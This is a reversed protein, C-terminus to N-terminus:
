LTVSGKLEKPVKELDGMPPGQTGYFLISNNSHKKLNNVITWNLQKLTVMTPQLGWQKRKKNAQKNQM